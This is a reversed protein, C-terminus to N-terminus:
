LPDSDVTSSVLQSLFLDILIREFESRIGNLSTGGHHTPLLIDHGTSNQLLLNQLMNAQSAPPSSKQSLCCSSFRISNGYAWKQRVHEFHRKCFLYTHNEKAFDDMEKCKQQKWGIALQSERYVPDRLFRDHIGIFHGGQSDVKKCYRKWANWSISVRQKETRGHRAGHSRGKDNLRLEPYLSCGIKDAFAICLEKIGNVFVTLCQVKPITDCYDVLEVSGLERIM